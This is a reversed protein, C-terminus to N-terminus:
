MVIIVDVAAGPRRIRLVRLHSGCHLQPPQDLAEKRSQLVQSAEGTLSYNWESASAADVTESGSPTRM